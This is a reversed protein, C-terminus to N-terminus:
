SAAGSAAKLTTGFPEIYSHGLAVLGITPLSGVHSNLFVAESLALCELPPGVVGCV